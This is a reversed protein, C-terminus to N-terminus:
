SPQDGPAMGALMRAFAILLRRNDISDIAMFAAILDEAGPAALFDILSHDYAPGTRASAADDKFFWDLDLHLAAAAATLLRPPIRSEGAEYSRLGSVTIALERAM